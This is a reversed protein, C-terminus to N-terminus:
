YVLRLNSLNHLWFYDQNEFDIAFMNPIKYLESFFTSNIVNSKLIIYSNHVIMKSVEDTYYNNYRHINNYLTYGDLINMQNYIYKNIVRKGMHSIFTNYENFIYDINSSTGMKINVFVTYLNFPYNKTLRFYEDNIKFIYFTRM